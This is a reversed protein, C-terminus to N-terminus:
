SPCPRCLKYTHAQVWAHVLRLVAQGPRVAVEGPQAQDSMVATLLQPAVTVALSPQHHQRSSLVHYVTQATCALSRQCLRSATAPTSACCSPLPECPSDLPQQQLPEFAVAARGVSAFLPVATAYWM